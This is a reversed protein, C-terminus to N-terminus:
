LWTWTHLIRHVFYFTIMYITYKEDVLKTQMYNVKKFKVKTLDIFCLTYVEM